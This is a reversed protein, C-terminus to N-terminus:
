AVKLATRSTGIVLTYRGKKLAKRASFAFKAPKGKAAKAVKAKAVTKGGRVLRATGASRSTAYTVSCSVKKGGSTVKCTVKGDRGDRGAAGAAGAAGPAGPAGNAGAAGATGDTGNSGNTGNAGAPGGPGAAGAAGAAGASGPAGNAGDTGDRGAPGAVNTPLHSPTKGNLVAFIDTQDITGQINAAQPGSAWVPVEAGTHAQSGGTTAAGGTDSTGYSVRIPSGDITQVTGYSAGVAPVASSTIMQSSHAHDATVVILTDPHSRQFDLAVGIADDFAVTEGIQGCIDAAHDRKDISAGEVQLTFGEPDDDLLDIAKRTMAPLSPETAPRNTEVCRTTASGGQIQPDPTPSGGLYAATRAYLPAWETTM